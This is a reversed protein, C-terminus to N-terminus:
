RIVTNVEEIAHRVKFYADAPPLKLELILRDMKNIVLTMALGERVCHKIVQETNVMVGEVIDVVIVVGDALRTAAVVEDIFNTHGLIFAHTLPIADQYFRSSVLHIWCTSWIPNIKWTRCFLRCPCVRSPFVVNENWSIHIQIASQSSLM